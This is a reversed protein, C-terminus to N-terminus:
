ESGQNATSFQCCTDKATFGSMLSKSSPVSGSSTLRPAKAFEQSSEASLIM